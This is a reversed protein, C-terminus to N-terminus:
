KDKIEYINGGYNFFRSNGFTWGLFDGIYPSAQGLKSMFGQMRNQKQQTIQQTPQQTIQQTQAKIRMSTPVPIRNTQRTITTTTTPITPQQNTKAIQEAQIKKNRDAISVDIAQKYPNYTQTGDTNTTIYKDLSNNNIYNYFDPDIQQINYWADDKVSGDENFYDPYNKQLYLYKNNYIENIKNAVINGPTNQEAKVEDISKTIGNTVDTLGYVGRGMGTINKWTFPNGAKAMKASKILGAGPLLYIASSAAKKLHGQGPYLIAAGINGGINGAAIFKGTLGPTVEGLSASMDLAELKDPDVGWAAATKTIGSDYKSYDVNKKLSKKYANLIDNNSSNPNNIVSLLEKNKITGDKALMKLRNVEIRDVSEQFQKQREQEKLAANQTMFDNSNLREDIGAQSNMLSNMFQQAATPKNYTTMQGETEFIHGGNAYENYVREIDDLNTMGNQVGLKIVEYREKDSLDTYKM